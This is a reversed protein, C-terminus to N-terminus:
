EKFFHPIECWKEVDKFFDFNPTLLYPELDGDLAVAMVDVTGDTLKVLYDKEETPIQENVKHWQPRGAKLEEQMRKKQENLLKITNVYENHLYVLQDVQAELEAIRDAFWEICDMPSSSKCSEMAQQFIKARETCKNKLEEETM